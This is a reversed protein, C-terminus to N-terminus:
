HQSSPLIKKKHFNKIRLETEGVFQFKVDWGFARITRLSNRMNIKAFLPLKCLSPNTPGGIIAYIVDRPQKSEFSKRHRSTFGLRAVRLDANRRFGPRKMLLDASMLGQAFLHSLVASGGYRKVHVLAGSSHLLDCVEFRSRGGGFVINEGDLCCFSHAMEEATRKNYAQEDNDCIDFYPLPLDAPQISQVDRDVESVLDSDVRYWTGSSLVYAENGIVLEVNLCDYLAWRKIPYDNADLVEVRHARLFPVSIVSENGRMARFLNQWNLEPYVAKSRTPLIFRFGSGGWELIEIPALWIGPFKERLRDDLYSDLTTQIITDTVEEIRGLWQYQEDVSVTSKHYLRRLYHVLTDPTVRVSAHLSTGGAMTTGLTKDAPKGSITRVLDREADIGFSELKTENAAQERTQRFLADFTRKDYSRVKGPKISNLAVRLGFAPDVSGAELLASGYSFAVALIRDDVPVLLIAPASSLAPLTIGALLSGFFSAWKPREAFRVTFYLRAPVMDEGDPLSLSVPTLHRLDGLITRDDHLDRRLLLVNLPWTRIKVKPRPTTRTRGPIESRAM